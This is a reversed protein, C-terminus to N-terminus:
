RMYKSLIENIRNLDSSSIEKIGNTSKSVLEIMCNRAFNINRITLRSKNINRM